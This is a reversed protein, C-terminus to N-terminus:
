KFWFINVFFPSLFWFVSIYELWLHFGRCFQLCLNWFQGTKYKGKIERSSQNQLSTWKGCSCIQINQNINATQRFIKKNIYAILTVSTTTEYHNNPSRSLILRLLKLTLWHVNNKNKQCLNRPFKGSYKTQFCWCFIVNTFM